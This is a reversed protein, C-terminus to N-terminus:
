VFSAFCSAFSDILVLLALKLDDSVVGFVNPDVADPM